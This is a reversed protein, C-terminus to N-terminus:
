GRLRSGYKRFQHVTYAVVVSIWYTTLAPGPGFKMLLLIIFVDGMSIAVSLKPLRVSITAVSLSIITLLLWQSSYDGSSRLCSAAFPIAAVYVVVSYLRRVISQEQWRVILAGLSIPLM